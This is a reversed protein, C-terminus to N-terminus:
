KGSGTLPVSQNNATPQRKGMCNPNQCFCSVTQGFCHRRAFFTRTKVIRGLAPRALARHGPFTPLPRCSSCSFCMSSLSRFPQKFLQCVGGVVKLLTLFRFVAPKSYPTLPLPLHTQDFSYSDIWRYPAPAARRYKSWSYPESRWITSKLTSNKVSKFTSKCLFTCKFTSNFTSM